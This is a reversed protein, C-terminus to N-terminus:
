DICLSSLYWAFVWAIDSFRDFSFIFIGCTRGLKKKKKQQFILCLVFVVFVHKHFLFHCGNGLMYPLALCTRMSLPKSIGLCFLLRGVHKLQWGWFIDASTEWSLLLFYPSLIFLEEFLICPMFLIHYIICANPNLFWFGLCPFVEGKSSSDVVGWPTITEDKKVWVKKVRPSSKRTMEMNAMSRLMGQM